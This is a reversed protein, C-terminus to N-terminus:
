IGRPNSRRLDVNEVNAQRIHIAIGQGALKPEHMGGDVRDKDGDSPVALLPVALPRPPSSKIVVENFWDLGILQQQCDSTLRGLPETAKQQTTASDSPISRGTVVPLERGM